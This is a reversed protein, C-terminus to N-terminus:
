NFTMDTNSLHQRLKAASVSTLYLLLLFDTNKAFNKKVSFNVTPAKTVGGVWTGIKCM